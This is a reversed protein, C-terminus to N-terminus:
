KKLAKKYINQPLKFFSTIGLYVAFLVIGYIGLLFTLQLKSDYDFVLVQDLACKIGWVVLLALSMKLTDIYLVKFNIQHEKKLARICLSIHIISAIATSLIAGKFDFLIVLPFFTIFKTVTACILYLIAKKRQRITLLITSSIPAITGIIALMSSWMLVDSGLELNANGYMLSYIPKALILLMFSLFLCIYIVIEFIDIVSKKLEDQKNNMFYVTIYPVIGASFGLALVQPIAILKLANFQIMALMLKATEYPVESYTSMIPLFFTSNVINTSSGFIIVLIYPIGLALIEKLLDKKNVAIETQKEALDKLEKVKNRSYKWLYVITIFASVFAALIGIYIAYIPDYKLIEVLYFSFGLLFIIRIIQELVQTFSYIRLEKMGQFFGRLGSLYPVTFISLALIIFTNKQYIIDTLPADSGLILTSIPMSLVVFILAAIFGSLLLIFSSLRKIMLVTQYNESEYYKAVLSSVAFPLGAACVNLVIDYLSYANSYFIMNAETALSTYPAVYILGIFKALFLGFTSTLAGIIVSHKMKNSM